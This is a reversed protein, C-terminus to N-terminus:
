SVSRDAHQAVLPVQIFTHKVDEAMGTPPLAEVVLQVVADYHVSCVGGTLADIATGDFYIRRPFTPMVWALRPQYSVRMGEEWTGQLILRANEYDVLFHRDPIPESFSEVLNTSPVEGTLSAVVRVSGPVPFDRLEVFTKDELVHGVHNGTWAPGELGVLTGDDDRLTPNGHNFPNVEYYTDIYGVQREVGAVEVTELEPVPGLYSVQDPEPPVWRLSATGAENLPVTIRAGLHTYQGWEKRALSGPFEGTNDFVTARIKEFAYPNTDEDFVEVAFSEGPSGQRAFVTSPYIRVDSPMAVSAAPAIPESAESRDSTSFWPSRRYKNFGQTRAWPLLNIRGWPWRYDSLTTTGEPADPDWQHAPIPLLALFGRAQANHVPQISLDEVVHFRADKSEYEITLETANPIRTYLGPRYGKEIQFADLAVLGLGTGPHIRVLIEHTNAPMSLGTTVPYAFDEFPKRNLTEDPEDYFPFGFRRWELDPAEQEDLPVEYPGHASLVIGDRDVFSVGVRVSAGIGTEMSAAYASFTYAQTPDVVVRQAVYDDLDGTGMLLAWAGRLPAFDLGNASRYAPITYIRDGQIEHDRPQYGTFPLALTTEDVTGEIEEDIYSFDSNPWLNKPGAFEILTEDRESDYAVRFEQRLGLMNGPCLLDDTIVVPEGLVPNDPLAYEQVGESIKWRHKVFVTGFQGAEENWVRQYGQLEVETTESVDEIGSHRITFTYGSIWWDATTTVEQGGVYVRAGQETMTASIPFTTRQIDRVYLGKKKSFLHYAGDRVFFPGSHVRPSWIPVAHAYHAQAKDVPTVTSDGCDDPSTSEGETQETPDDTDDFALSDFFDDSICTEIAGIAPTQTLRAKRDFDVLGIGSDIWSPLVYAMSGRGLIPSSPLLTLDITAGLQNSAPKLFGPDDSMSHRDQATRMRWSHDSPSVDTLHLERVFERNVSGSPQRERIEAVGGGIQDAPDALNPCYWDNWDSRLNKLDKEYCLIGFDSRSAVVNDYLYALGTDEEGQGRDDQLDIFICYTKKRERSAHSDNFFTNHLAGVGRSKTAVLGHDCNIIVSNALLCEDAQYFWVSANGCDLFMCADVIARHSNVGFCLGKILDRFFLRQVTVYPVNNGILGGVGSRSPNKRGSVVPLVGQGGEIILRASATPSLSDPEIRFPEYVGGDAVTIRQTATFPESGHDEVVANIAEQISAYPKGAGVIYQGGGPGSSPVLTGSPVLLPSV